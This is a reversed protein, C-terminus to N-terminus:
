EIGFPISCTSSLDDFSAAAALTDSQLRRQHGVLVLEQGFVLCWKENRRYIFMGYSINFEM